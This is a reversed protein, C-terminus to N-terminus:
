DVIIEDAFLWAKSGAGSHGAPCTGISRAVVRIYRASAGAAAISVDRLIVGGERDSAELGTVAPLAKFTSGDESLSVEVSRPLFAWSGVNQLFGITVSGIKRSRGLDV